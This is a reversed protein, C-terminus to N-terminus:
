RNNFSGRFKRPHQELGQANKNSREPGVLPTDIPEQWPGDSHKKTATFRIARRNAESSRAPLHIKLPPPM